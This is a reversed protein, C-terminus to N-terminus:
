LGEWEARSRAEAKRGADAFNCFFDIAFLCKQLLQIKQSSVLKGLRLKQLRCASVLSMYLILVGMQYVLMEVANVVENAFLIGDYAFVLAFCLKM